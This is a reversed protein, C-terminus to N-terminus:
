RRLTTSTLPRKATSSSPMPNLRTGQFPAISGQSPCLRAAVTRPLWAEQSNPLCNPAVSYISSTRKPPPTKFRGPATGACRVIAGCGCVWAGRRDPAAHGGVALPHSPQAKGPQSRSHENQGDNVVLVVRWSGHQVHVGLFESADLAGALAGVAVAAVSDMVSVPTQEHPWSHAAVGHGVVRQGKRGRQAVHKRLSVCPTM